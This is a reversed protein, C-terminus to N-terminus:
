ALAGAAAEGTVAPGPQGGALWDRMVLVQDRYQEAKAGTGNYLRVADKLDGHAVELKDHLVRMFRDLCAEFSFWMKSRFFEEDGKINQLDYQFIGYGKYLWPQTPIARLRRTQNAEAILEDTLSGYRARFEATNRPFANRPHGPMDGSADFVCRALLEAPSLQNIWQLWVTATEKCAFACVLAADINTGSVAKEILPGFNAMMWQQAQRAREPKLPFGEEPLAAVTTKLLASPAQGADANRFLENWTKSGVVGDVVLQHAQQFAEVAMQTAHGYIGDITGCPPTIQLATLALQVATVDEGRALPFRFALERLFEMIPRM